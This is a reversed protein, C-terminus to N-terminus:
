RGREDCMARPRLGKSRLYDCPPPCIRFPFRAKRAERVFARALGLEEREELEWFFGDLWGGDGGSTLESAQCLRNEGSDIAARALAAGVFSETTSRCQPYAAIFEPL